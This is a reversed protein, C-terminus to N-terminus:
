RGPAAAAAPVTDSPKPPAIGKASELQVRIWNEESVVQYPLLSPLDFVVRVIKLPQERYQSSRIATVLPRGGPIPQRISYTAGPIDLILRPPRTLTFVKYTAIPGDAMVLAVLSDPKSEYVEIAIIKVVDASVSPPTSREPFAQAVAPDAPATTGLSDAMGSPFSEVESAPRDLFLRDAQNGQM